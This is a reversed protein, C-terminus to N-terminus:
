RTLRQLENVDFLHRTSLITLYSGDEQKVVGSVFENGIGSIVQPPPQVLEKAITVVRLVRDIMIGVKVKNINLVVFGSLMDDDEEDIEIKKLSFRNHLNIIPIVEGRLNFIGEVYKPAHPLPRVPQISHIEKVDMINIGYNEGGLQFTVLQYSDNAKVVQKTNSRM